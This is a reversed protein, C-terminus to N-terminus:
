LQCEHLVPAGELTAMLAEESQRQGRRRVASHDAKRFEVKGRLAVVLHGSIVCFATWNDLATKSPDTLALGTKKVPLRTVGREPVGECLEKFLEPM